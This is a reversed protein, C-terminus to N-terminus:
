PEKSNMHPEDFLILIRLHPFSVIKIRDIRYICSLIMGDEVPRFSLFGTLSITFADHSYGMLPMSYKRELGLYQDRNLPRSRAMTTKDRKTYVMRKVKANRGCTANRAINWKAPAHILPTTRVSPSPEAITANSNSANKTSTLQFIEQFSSQCNWSVSTSTNSATRMSLPQRSNTALARTSSSSAGFETLISPFGVIDATYEGNLKRCIM